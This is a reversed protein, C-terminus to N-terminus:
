KKSLRCTYMRVHWRLVHVYNHVCLVTCLYLCCESGEEKILEDTALVEMEEHHHLKLFALEGAHSAELGEKERHLAEFQSLQM